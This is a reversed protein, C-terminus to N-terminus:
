ESFKSWCVHMTEFLHVHLNVGVNMHQEKIILLKYNSGITCPEKNFVTYSQQLANKSAHIWQELLQVCSYWWSNKSFTTIHIHFIYLNKFKNLVIDLPRSILIFSYILFLKDFKNKQSGSKTSFVNFFNFFFIMYVCWKCRLDNWFNLSAQQKLFIQYFKNNHKGHGKPSWLM